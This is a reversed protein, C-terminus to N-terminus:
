LYLQLHPIGDVYIVSDRRAFGHKIATFVAKEGLLNIITGMKIYEVVDKEVVLVGKYFSEAVEVSAGSSLKLKRGILEEDCVAVVIEGSRSHHTKVWCRKVCEDRYKESLTRRGALMM